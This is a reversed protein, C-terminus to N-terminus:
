KKRKKRQYILTLRGLLIDVLLFTVNGMLLMVVLMVTGAERFEAGIADMGMLFILVAYMVVVAMNFLIAKCVWRFAKPLKDLVPKCIPYYGLFLFVGAAEKDPCLLVSLIAVAAYWVWAIKRGCADLVPILLFCALIPCCFTALPIVGGLTMIVVALAALTGGLAMREASNKGGM